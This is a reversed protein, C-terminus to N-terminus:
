VFMQQLLGKKFAQTNNIQTNVMEIKADLASLFTAIKQQEELPPLQVIIKMLQVKSMNFRTSGQALKIIEKRFSESRFLYSAFDPYLEKLSNPRYGFCFSNLYLEEVDETLVSAYGIEMPTESSTTFFVDGYQATKQKEGEKIDVLGFNSTDIKSSSFIQMYQIYPKGRGFDVKTKGTLGNFTEGVEGLKKEEWEPYNNGNADKFRIRLEDNECEYNFLKQMVGKKYDALLSKKKSLQQIKADVSSLFTAIKQQEPLTPLHLKLTKIDSTTFGKISTGQSFNILINKRAILFYGIFYSDCKIPIFNSFDQSTCIDVKNIALKGVGVRSILLISNKPIVKTASENIATDNIYRTVNINHIDNEAIDSSSIWPISGQWYNENSTTPTGGGSFTGLDGFKEIRWVNDFERFRLRPVSRGQEACAEKNETMAKM